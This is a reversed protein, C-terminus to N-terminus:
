KTAAMPPALLARWTPADVAHDAPSAANTWLGNAAKFWGVLGATQAWTSGVTAPLGHAALREQVLRLEDPHDGVNGVWLTPPEPRDEPSDPPQFAQAAPATLGDPIVEATATEPASAIAVAVDSPASFVRRAFDEPRVGGEGLVNDFAKGVPSRTVAAALGAGWQASAAGGIANLGSAVGIEGWIAPDDSSKGGIWLAGVTAVAAKSGLGILAERVVAAPGGAANDLIGTGKLVGMYALPYVIGGLLATSVDSASYNDPDLAELWAPAWTSPESISGMELAKSIYQAGVYATSYMAQARAVKPLLDCVGELARAIPGLSEGAAEVAGAVAVDTAAVAVALGVEVTLAAGVVATMIWLNCAERQQEAKVSAQRRLGNAATRLHGVLEGFGNDLDAINRDLADRTAGTFAPSAIRGANVLDTRAGTTAQALADCANAHQRLRPIDGGPDYWRMLWDVPAGPGAM